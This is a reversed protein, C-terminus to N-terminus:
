DSWGSESALKDPGSEEVMDIVRIFMRWFVFAVVLGTVLDFLYHQKTALISVCLLAWEVWLLVLFPKAFRSEHHDRQVWHTILRALLTSHVIHLSPWANWPNDSVHIFTFLAEELWNPPNTEWHTDLQDRLDIEAPLLLFFLVCFMTAMLLGQVGLALEMRGRDDRPALALTAPYFLYLAVYPIILWNIVPLSRDLAIEPDWVTELYHAAINNSIFYPAGISFMGVFFISILFSFGGLSERRSWIPRWVGRWPRLIKLPASDDM